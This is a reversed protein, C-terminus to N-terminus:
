SSTALRRYIDALGAATADWTFRAVHRRGAAVREQRHARDTVLRELAGAWGDVDTPDLLQAGPGAVEALAGARSVLAPVGLTMAELPPLGFGEYLSPYALVTAGALLTVRAPDDLAGPLVVRASVQPDLREMAARVAPTAPGPPGALVLLLDAIGGAIRGFAEVLMPLNKREVQDGLALVYPRGAVAAALAAPLPGPDSLDPVAFPVVTIRGAALLGPGLHEEVESALQSTTVHLHAGRAIARRLMGPFTSTVADATSPHLLFGIDHVSLLVPRRTPGVTFNTAHVVEAAPLWRDMSVRNTRSWVQILARTPVRIPRTGAPLTGDATMGIAYPRPQISPRLRAIGEWMGATSRGMGTRFGLLPTVDFAVRVAEATM